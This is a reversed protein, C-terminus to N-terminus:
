EKKSDFFSSPIEKEKSVKKFTPLIADPNVENNSEKFDDPVEIEEEDESDVDFFDEPLLIYPKHKFVVMKTKKVPEEDSDSFDKKSNKKKRLEELLLDKNM